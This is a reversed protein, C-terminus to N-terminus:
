RNFIVPYVFDKESEFDYGLFQVIGKGSSKESLYHPLSYNYIKDIKSHTKKRINQYNINNIKKNFNFTQDPQFSLITIKSCRIKNPHNPTILVPYWLKEDFSFKFEPNNLNSTAGIKWKKKDYSHLTKIIKMWIEYFSQQSDDIDFVAIFTNLLQEDKTKQNDLYKSMIRLDDALSSITKLSLDTYIGTYMMNKSFSLKAYICPFNQYYFTDYIKSYIIHNNKKLDEIKQIM